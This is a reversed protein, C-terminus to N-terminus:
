KKAPKKATKKKAGTKKAAASKKTKPAAKKAMAKKHGAAKKKHKVAATTAAKKARAQVLAKGGAAKLAETNAAERAIKKAPDVIQPKTEAKVPQGEPATISGVFLETFDQRHGHTRRYGQRRKKKFVTIKAAKGQKVVTVSVKADKVLPAGIFAKDGGLMLVETLDFSDGPNKDLRAVRVTDGAQVRYQKGGSRIIAFANSSM